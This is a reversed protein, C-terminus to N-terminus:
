LARAKQLYAYQMKNQCWSIKVCPSKSFKKNRCWSIKRHEKLFGIVFRMELPICALEWGHVMYPPFKTVNKCRKHRSFNENVKKLRNHPLKPLDADHTKLKGPHHLPPLASIQKEFAPILQYESVHTAM